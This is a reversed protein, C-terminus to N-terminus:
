YVWFIAVLTQLPTFYLNYRETNFIKPLCFGITKCLTGTNEFIM